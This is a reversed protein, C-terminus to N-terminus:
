DVIIKVINQVWQPKNVDGSERQGIVLRFPAGREIDYDEGNEHWAIIVPYKKDPNQEDIYDEKLAEQITLDQEYGDSAVFKIKTASNNLKAKELIVKLRIGKFSFYEKTGYSNLSFFEDEFYGDKLEKLDDLSLKLSTDVGSGEIQLSTKEDKSEQASKEPSQPISAKLEEPKQESSKEPEPKAEIPAKAEPQNEPPEPAPEEPKAIQSAEESGSVFTPPTQSNNCGTLLIFCLIILLILSDKVKYTMTERELDLNLIL